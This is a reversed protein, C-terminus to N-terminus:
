GANFSATTVTINNTDSENAVFCEITDGTVMPILAVAGVQSAGSGAAEGKSTAIFTGNKALYLSTTKTGGGSVDLTAVVSASISVDEKGTYIWTGNANFSFRVSLIDTWTAAIKVPTGSVSITTVTSNNTVHGSTVHGSDAVNKIDQVEIDVDTQNRGSADFFSGGGTRHVGVGLSVDGGYTADIHLFSETSEPRSDITSMIIRESSAGLATLDSGGVNAGANYQPLRATITKVNTAQVGDDCGIIPAAILTVFDFTNIDMGLQCNFLVAINLIVSNGNSLEVCTASPTTIFLGCLQLIIGTTPSTIFSAAGSHSLLPLCAGIFNYCGNLDELSITAAGFDVSAVFDYRGAPLEYVSGNLFQSLDALSSVFVTGTTAQSLYPVNNTLLSVNDGSNITNVEALAAIGALKSIEAATMYKNTTATDSIDDADLVVVGTQTNVSAVPVSTIYGADNTLTSVNDSPQTASDALTGQASTAKGDLAAQLDTQDSLTGAIGGWTSGPGVPGTAGTAGTDGTIGQVGQRGAAKVEIKNTTINAKIGM